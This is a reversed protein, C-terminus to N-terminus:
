ELGTYKRTEGFYHKLLKKLGRRMIENLTSPSLELRRALEKLTIKRPYDFFGTELAILLVKEQLPTLVTSRLDIREVSIIEYEMNEERLRKRLEYFSKEDTLFSYLVWEDRELMASSLFVKSEYLLKCISCPTKDVYALCYKSLGHHIKVDFGHDRIREILSCPAKVLHRVLDESIPRIDIISILGYERALSVIECETKVRLKVILLKDRVM